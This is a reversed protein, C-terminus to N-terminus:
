QNPMGDQKLERVVQLALERQHEQQETTLAVDSEQGSQELRSLAKVFRPYWPDRTSIAFDLHKLGANLEELRARQEQTLDDEAVLQRREDLLHQTAPDLTSRLGFLESTLIAAVGMGRPNEHPTDAVIHGSQQNRHLVQVQSRELGAIVLPDHTTMIIHSSAHEGVVQGLLDMYQISWAPNLHTDPEDLLFLAEEERTFRLLGLVMLLQQEGESLDRFTLSGDLDEVRVRVRVEEILDSM